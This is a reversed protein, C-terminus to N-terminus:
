VVTENGVLFPLDGRKSTKLSSLREPYVWSLPTIPHGTIYSISCCRRGEGRGLQAAAAGQEQGMRQWAPQGQEKM